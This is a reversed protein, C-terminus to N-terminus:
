AYRPKGYYYEVLQAWEATLSPPTSSTPTTASEIYDDVSTQPTQGQPSGVNMGATSIDDAVTPEIELNIPTPAVEPILTGATPELDAVGEEEPTITNSDIIVSDELYAQKEEPALNDPDIIVSKELNASEEVLDVATTELDIAQTEEESKFIESGEIDSAGEEEPTLTDPDIVRASRLTRRELDVAPTEKKSEFIESGELDAAVKEPMLLDDGVGGSLLDDGVGGSIDPKKLDATTELNVSTPKEESTLTDSESIDPEEIDSSEITAGIQGAM